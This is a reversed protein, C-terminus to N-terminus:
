SAALLGLPAIARVTMQLGVYLVVVVFLLMLWRPQILSAIRAGIFAGAFVGVVVPGAVVAEVEGRFMYFFAGAAATIGLVLNSTAVAVPMPAGLLLHIVPVKVFGGGVGLLASANGGIFSAGLAQALRRPSYSTPRAMWADGPARPTSSARREDGDANPQEALARRALTFATYYMLVAFLGAIVEDVLVAAALGGCIAGLVAPLELTLGLRVDARNRRVYYAAAGSSTAIVAILSTGVATSIPYGFALTLLPVILVGGGIGLLSGLLGAGVGGLMLFGATLAM